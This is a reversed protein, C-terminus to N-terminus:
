GTGRLGLQQLQSDWGRAGGSACCPLETHRPGPGVECRRINLAASVDRYLVQHQQKNLVDLGPSLVTKGLQVSFSEPPQGPLAESPNSYASSVRSTRFEDVILVRGAPFQRLAEKLMQSVPVGRCGITGSGNFGAAGYALALVRDPWRKKVQTILKSWFKAVVRQMGCYLRFKANVWQPKSVEGWM